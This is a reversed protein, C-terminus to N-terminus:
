DDAQEECVSDYNQEDDGSLGEYEAMCRSCVLRNVWRHADSVEIEEDCAACPIITDELYALLKEEDQLADDEITDHISNM